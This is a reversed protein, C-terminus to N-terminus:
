LTPGPTQAADKPFEAQDQKPNKRAAEIAAIIDAKVTKGTLDIQERAALDRLQEITRDQIPTRNLEIAAIIDAKVSIGTLDAKETAALDRLEEVTYDELSRPNQNEAFKQEQGHFRATTRKRHKVIRAITRKGGDLTEGFRKRSVIARSLDILQIEAYESKKKGKRGAIALKRFEDRHESKEHEAGHLIDVKGNTKIGITLFRRM